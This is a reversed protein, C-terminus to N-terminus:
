DTLAESIMCLATDDLGNDRAIYSFYDAIDAIEEDSLNYKTRIIDIYERDMKVGEWSQESIEGGGNTHKVRRNQRKFHTDYSILTKKTM